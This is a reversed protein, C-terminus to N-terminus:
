EKSKRDKVWNLYGKFNYMFDILQQYTKIEKIDKIKHFKSNRSVWLMRKVNVLYYSDCKLLIENDTNSYDEKYGDIMKQLEEDSYDYTTIATTFGNGQTIKTGPNKVKIDSVDPNQYIKFSNEPIVVCPNGFFSAQDYSYSCCIPTFGLGKVVDKVWDRMTGKKWNDPLGMMGRMMERNSAGSVEAHYFPTKDLWGRWIIPLRILKSNGKIAAIMADASEKYDATYKIEESLYTLLRM